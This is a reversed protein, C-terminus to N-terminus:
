VIIVSKHPIINICIHSFSLLDKVICESESQALAVMHEYILYHSIWGQIVFYLSVEERIM